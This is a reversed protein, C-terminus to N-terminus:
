EEIIKEIDIADPQKIETALEIEQEKSEIKNLEEKVSKKTEKINIANGETGKTIILNSDEIFYSTEKAAGPITGNIENLINELNEENYQFEIDINKENNKCSLIEFNNKVINNKRGVDYAEKVAEEVNYNVELQEVNLDNEFEDKKLKIIESKKDNILNQIKENAEEQSLNSVDINNIKVGSIIKTNNINTLAFITCFMIIAVIVVISIIGITVMKKKSSIENKVFQFKEKKDKEEM